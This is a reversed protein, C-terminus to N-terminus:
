LSEITCNRPSPQAHSHRVCRQTLGSKGHHEICWENMTDLVEDSQHIAIEPGEVVAALTGDSVLVAIEIIADKDVELGTMELDIWVLPDKSISLKLAATDPLPAAVTAVTSVGRKKRRGMASPPQSEGVLTALIAFRNSMRNRSTNLVRPLLLNTVPLSLM